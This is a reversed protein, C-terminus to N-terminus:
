RHLKTKSLGLARFVNLVKSTAQASLLELYEKRRTLAYLCLAKVEAPADTWFVLVERPITKKIDSLEHRIRAVELDDIPKSQNARVVQVFEDVHLEALMKGPAVPMDEDKFLEVHTTKLGKVLKDLTKGSPNTKSQEIKQVMQHSLDARDALDYQNWGCAERLRKVNLRLLDRAKNM